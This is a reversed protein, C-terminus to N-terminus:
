SQQFEAGPLVQQLGTHQMLEAPVTFHLDAGGDKAKTVYTIADNLVLFYPVLSEPPGGGFDVQKGVCVM